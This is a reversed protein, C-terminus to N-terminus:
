ADRGEREADLYRALAARWHPLEVGLSRARELGLVSFAPRAAPRPMERTPIPEVPVQPCLGRQAGLEIAACALDYWSAAGECALNLTGRAGRALAAHLASALVASWTPRGLQDDVVRLARGERAARLMTRVFNAGPGFVWQTRVVLHEGGAARVAEEGALKSRGYASIPAPPAAESLPRSATGDFVYDSSLQVLLCRGRCAHALQGPAQGNVRQAEAEREECADVATLAACNILADPRIRELAREVAAADTVDLERSALGAVDIGRGPLLASLSRGVQGAAGTVLWRAGERTVRDVGM